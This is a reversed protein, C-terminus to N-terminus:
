GVVSPSPDLHKTLTALRVTIQDVGASVDIHSGLDALAEEFAIKDLRKTGEGMLEACIQAMGRKRSPDDVGGGEFVAEISLIPLKRQRVLYVVAGNDLRFVEASPAKFPRLKGAPPQKARFPEKPFTLEQPASAYSSSIGNGASQGKHGGSACSFLVASAFLLLSVLSCTRIQLNM